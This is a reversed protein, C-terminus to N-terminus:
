DSNLIKVIKEKSLSIGIGICGNKMKEFPKSYDLKKGFKDFVEGGAEELIIQPGCTDWKGLHLSLNIYLDNQNLAIRCIKIGVSGCKEINEIGLNKCFKIEEPRSHNRSELYILKESENSVNLKAVEGNKELYAGMGKEAFFLEGTIPIYVIGFIPEFEELLGIMISFEGNKNIFGKTGDIPDIVWIKKKSYIKEIEKDEESIIGYDAFRKKLENVILKSALLDAKTVPSNDEKIKTKFDTEYIKLIEVGVKKVLDLVPVYEHSINYKQKM